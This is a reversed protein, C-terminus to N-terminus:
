SRVTYRLRNLASGEVDRVHGDAQWRLAEFFRRARSNGNAVFCVAATLGLETLWEQTAAHLALGTRFGVNSGLHEPAIYLNEWCGTNAPSLSDDGLLEDPEARRGSTFGVVEGHAEAVVVFEDAGPSGLRETWLRRRMEIGRVDIAEDTLVGGRYAEEYGAVHIAAIAEADAPVATRTTVTQDASAM